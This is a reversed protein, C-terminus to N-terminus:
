WKCLSSSSFSFHLSFLYEQFHCNLILSWDMSVHVSNLGCGISSSTINGVFHRNNCSCTLKQCLCSSHNGRACVCVEQRLVLTSLCLASAVYMFYIELTCASVIGHDLFNGCVGALLSTHIRSGTSHLCVLIMYSVFPLCPSFLFVAVLNLGPVLDSDGSALRLYSLFLLWFCWHCILSFIQFHQVLEFKLCNLFVLSLSVALSRKVAQVVFPTFRVIFEQVM